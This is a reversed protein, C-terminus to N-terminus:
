HNPTTERAPSSGAQLWPAPELGWDHVLRKGFKGIASEIESARSRHRLDLLRRAATEPKKIQRVFDAISRCNEKYLKFLELKMAERVTLHVFGDAKMTNPNDTASVDERLAIIAQLATIVADHAHAGIEEERMSRFAKGAIASIIQPFRPFRLFVEDDEREVRFGYVYRCM